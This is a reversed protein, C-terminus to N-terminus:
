LSYKALKAVGRWLEDRHRSNRVADILNGAALAAALGVGWWEGLQWGCFLAAGITLFDAIDLTTIAPDFRM